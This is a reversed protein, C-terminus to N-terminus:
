AVAERAARRPLNARVIAEAMVPVVSNGIRAVQSTKTGTLVYEDPFGQARALERPTLMRLGVDVIQYDVGAITVLGFRAKCTATHLPDRCDQGHACAGYFKTLFARVAAIHQGGSTVTPMPDRADAGRATGYTKELWAACLGNHDISTVTPMPDRADKGVMGGFFQQLHPAMVALEGRHAATITRLPEEISHARNPDGTHTIPVVSPAVVGLPAAGGPRKVFGNATVTPLPERADRGVHGGRFETVHPVVLAHKPDAVVVGLPREVDRTRPEQGDREGYGSIIFPAPHELVFRRLGAAIRRMTAEALPRKRGFISPCPISWDIIECAGRWARARGPGHTPEPWVIPAGDCRAVLFLRRRHTPAGFDAANLERWDVEYGLARLRSVFSRFTKGKRRPCPRNDDLLPGWDQFERVNELAIVRPRVERAWRVVVWALSRIKKEVPKAGKARSFHKCDPSAWLLGVCRGGVAARPDVKWVDETFHQTRAHNARHMEIAAADHNIAIDVPRGLAREIGLSAGGGGAFSDVVIEGPELEVLPADGGAPFPLLTVVLAEKGRELARRARRQLAPVGRVPERRQARARVRLHRPQGGRSALPTQVSRESQQALDADLLACMHAADAREDRAPAPASEGAALHALTM